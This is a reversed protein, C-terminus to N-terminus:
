LMSLARLNEIIQSREMSRSSKLNRVFDHVINQVGQHNFIRQMFAYNKDFLKKIEDEELSCIRKGEDQLYKYVLNKMENSIGGQRLVCNRCMLNAILMGMAIQYQEVMHQWSLKAPIRPNATFIENTFKMANGEEEDLSISSILNEADCVMIGIAMGTIGYCKDDEDIYKLGIAM